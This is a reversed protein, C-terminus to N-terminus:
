TTLKSRAAAHRGGDALGGDTRRGRAVWVDVVVCANRSEWKGYTRAEAPSEPARGPDQRL